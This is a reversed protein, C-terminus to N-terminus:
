FKVGVSISYTRGLYDYLGRNTAGLTAGVIPPNEDGLNTVTADLSWNDKIAWRGILDVYNLTPVGAVPATPRTVTTVDRMANIYRWRAGVTFSKLGYTLSTVGRWRPLAPPSAGPLNVTDAYDRFPAGPTAQVLFDKLYSFSTALELNGSGEGLGIATLDFGNNFGFDIGRTRYGGLNLYPQTSTPVGTNPDRTILQCFTNTPSYSPNSGDLNFCKASSTNGDIVAIADAIKIDFYDVTVVPHPALSFTSEPSFVFGLTYTDAEEPTLSRNGVSVAPAAGGTFRYLDILPAPVGNAQCLARVAAANSGQRANSGVDCPDGALPPSGLQVFGGTPASFLELPNPARVARSYGGRLMLSPVFRWDLSAKYTSVGGALNYNSYRYGLDLNVSQALPKDKLIPALLEVAFEYVSIRGSTPNTPTGAVILNKVNAQDPSYSYDNGRYNALLAFRMDGSPLAFARGQVSAEVDDQTLHTINHLDGAVFNKCQPSLTSALGQFPNFGGPCIASGGDAANLLQQLPAAFLADRQTEDLRMQNRAGYVDWSGEIGELEGGLGVLAQYTNFAEEWARPGVELFRKQYAFPATPNPRSALLTKLDTPIFPNTTPITLQGITVTPTYGIQTTVTSDTYLIQGYAHLNSTFDYSVKSFLSYRDQPTVLWADRSTQYILVGTNTLYGAEPGPGKYNRLPVINTFLTGDANFGFSTNPAISGAPAGSSAFVTDITARSPLNTASPAYAGFFMSGSPGGVSFFDRSTNPVMDRKTYDFSVLASGKGDLFHNGGTINLNERQADGGFAAGYTARAQVGQLNQKSKINVVGAVADSGYATSAGGSIVEVSDVVGLPITNLDVVLLGNSPPLRHGDLLVLTRNDGLGRLNVTARGGGGAAGANDAEDHSPAFQPMQQLATELNVKGTERLSRDSATTIPSSSVYDRRVIRSGTVTIEQVSESPAAGQDAGTPKEEQALALRLRSWVSKREVAAPPEAVASPSMSGEGMTAGTTAAAKGTTKPAVILTVTRDNVFKFSLGTDRLIARLAQEASLGSEAGKSHLGNTLDARYVVQLGTSKAFSDLADALAQPPLRSPLGEAVAWASTVLAIPGLFLCSRVINRILRRSTM